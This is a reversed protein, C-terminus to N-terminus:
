RNMFEEIEETTRIIDKALNECGDVTVVVDDEIRIGIKEEEIYLGPEVTLVMGPKLEVDRAGVDHTDLGLFHSVGHYYYKSIESDEKILGLERCGETLVDKCVDNLRAFPIGPKIAKITENMAKLVVNYVARQRDTFKGSVPFTRTIDACYYNYQAGLDFLILDNEGTKSNNDHYHLVTGNVGSAAITHFATNRIGKSKLVFDFYAEIEYEMMGPKANRMMNKIGDYTIEIAKKLEELEEGSKITRMDRISNYINKIQYSPYKKSVNEAFLQPRSMPSDWERRELDLYLNEYGANILYNFGMEFDDVFRTKEIGSVSQAEEKSMREGVWKALVPDSKEIFLVEEVKGKIKTMMLIVNERDIGTMYLFNRNPVFDYDADASMHPAKDAFLIVVSNDLVEEMLRKRNSMYFEKNM